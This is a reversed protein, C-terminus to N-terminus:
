IMGKQSSNMVSARSLCLAFILLHLLVKTVCFARALFGVRNVALFMISWIVAFQVQSLLLDTIWILFPM